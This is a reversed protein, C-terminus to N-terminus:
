NKNTFGAPHSTRKLNFHDFLTPDVHRALKKISGSTDHCLGSVKIALNGVFDELVEMLTDSSIVPNFPIFNGNM